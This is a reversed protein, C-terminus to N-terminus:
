IKFIVPGGPGQGPDDARVKFIIRGTDRPSPLGRVNPNVHSEQIAESLRNIVRTLAGKEGSTKPKLTELQGLTKKASMIDIQSVGGQQNTELGKAMSNGAKVLNADYKQIPM